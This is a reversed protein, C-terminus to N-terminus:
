HGRKQDIPLLSGVRQGLKGPALSGLGVWGLEYLRQVFAAAASRSSQGLFGITSLKARQQAQAAIPWVAAGGVLTIFDRRRM